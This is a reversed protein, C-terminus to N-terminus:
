LGARGGEQRMAPPLDSYEGTQPNVLYQPKM